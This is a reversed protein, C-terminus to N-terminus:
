ANTGGHPHDLASPGHFWRFLGYGFMIAGFAVGLWMPSAMDLGAAFQAYIFAGFVLMVLLGTLTLILGTRRMTQPAGAHAPHNFSDSARGQPNDEM